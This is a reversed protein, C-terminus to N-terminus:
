PLPGADKLMSNIKDAEFKAKFELNQNLRAEFILELTHSDLLPGRISKQDFAVKWLGNYGGIFDMHKAPVVEKSKEDALSADFPRMLREGENAGILKGSGVKAGISVLIYYQGDDPSMLMSALKNTDQATLNKDLMELRAFARAFQSDAWYVELAAYQGNFWAM